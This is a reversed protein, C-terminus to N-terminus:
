MGADGSPGGLPLGDREVIHDSGRVVHALKQGELQHGTSAGAPEHGLKGTMDTAHRFREAAVVQEDVDWATASWIPTM